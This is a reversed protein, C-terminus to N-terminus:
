DNLAKKLFSLLIKRYQNKIGIDASLIPPGIIDSMGVSSWPIDHPMNGFAICMM